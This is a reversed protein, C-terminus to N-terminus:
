AEEEPDEGAAPDLALAQDLRAALRRAAHEGRTRLLHNRVAVEVLIALNRGPRSRCASRRSRCASSTRSADRRPRAARVRAGSGLTRAQRGARGAEVDADRHRRVSRPRQDPRHRAAGHPPADAASLHRHRHHRRAAARRRRRRLGPPPRPPDARARVREQRHRERGGDAGRPRPRRGAGRPPLTRPALLDDLLAGLKAFAVPTSLATRLVPVGRGSPRRRRARDAARPEQDRGRLRQRPQLGGRDDGAADDADLRTALFRVESQGFVLVRGAQLSADFGALALGAKQPYPNDVARDLGDRGALVELEVGAAISARVLADVTVRAIEDAM